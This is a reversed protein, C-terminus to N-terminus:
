TMLRERRVIQGATQGAKAPSKKTLSQIYKNMEAQTAKPNKKNWNAIKGQLIARQKKEELAKDAEQKKDFIRDGTREKAPSKGFGSFGKMKFPTTKMNNQKQAADM